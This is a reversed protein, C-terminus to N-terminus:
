DSDEDVNGDGDGDRDYRKEGMKSGDKGKSRGMPRRSNTTVDGCHCAKFTEMHAHHRGRDHANPENPDLAEESLVLEHDPCM